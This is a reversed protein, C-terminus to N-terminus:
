LIDPQRQNLRDPFFLILVAAAVFGLFTMMLCILFKHPVVPKPSAAAEEVVSVAYPADLSLLMLRREEILLLRTLAQRHDPNFTDKLEKKLWEIRNSTEERVSTRILQDDVKRLLGLFRVAFAPDPHRYIIRRSTTVGIPEIKVERNLYLVLEEPTTLNLGAGRWLTDKIIQDKIGDMRIVVGAVGHGRFSQEFRIFNPSGTPIQAEVSPARVMVNEVFSESLDEAIAPAVIMTAEYQPKLLLCLVVAGLLGM